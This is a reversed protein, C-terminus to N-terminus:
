IGLQEQLYSLADNVQDQHRAKISIPFFPMKGESECSQRCCRRLRVVMQKDKDDNSPGSRQVGVYAACELLLKIVEQRDAAVAYNLPTEGKSDTADVDSGYTLLLEAIKCHGKAAALHLPTKCLFTNDKANVDVGYNLSSRVLELNCTDVAWFLVEKAFEKALRLSTEGNSNVVNIDAGRDLLLKIVKREGNVRAWHLPTEGNRDQANIDADHDLLLAVVERRGETSADHLPTLGDNDKANVNAGHALLLAVIKQRGNHAAWHLATSGNCDKAHVDAAHALLFRVIITHGGEAACHLLTVDESIRSNGAVSSDLLAKVTEIDGIHLAERLADQEKAYLHGGLCSLVFMAIYLKKM